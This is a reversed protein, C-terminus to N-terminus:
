LRKRGTSSVTGVGAGNCSHFSDVYESSDSDDWADGYDDYGEGYGSGDDEGYGGDYGNGSGGGFDGWFNSIASHGVPLFENM